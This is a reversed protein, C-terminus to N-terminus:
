PRPGARAPEDGAAAHPRAESGRAVGSRPGPRWRDREGDGGGPEAVAHATAPGDAAIARAAAAPSRAPSRVRAAAPAPDGAARGAAARPARGAPSRRQAGPADSVWASPSAPSPARGRRETGLDSATARAASRPRGTRSTSSSQDAEWGSVPVRRADVASTRAVTTPASGPAPPRRPPPWAARAARGAPRAGRGRRGPGCRARQHQRHRGDANAPRAPRRRCRRPPTGARCGPRTPTGRGDPNPEVGRARPPHGAEAPAVAPSGRSGGAPPRM